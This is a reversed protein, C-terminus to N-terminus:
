CCLFTLRRTSSVNVNSGDSCSINWYHGGQSSINYSLIGSAGNSVFTYNVIVGDFVLSCNLSSASDDTVNFSFQQLASSVNTNNAPSVLFLLPPVTDRITINFRSTTNSTYDTEFITSFTYNTLDGTANVTWTVNCSTTNVMSVLCSSDHPNATTTYFPLAGVTNPVVGKATVAAYADIRPYILKTNSDYIGVGNFKLLNEIESPTVNRSYKERFYQVVLAASGAAHPTAMSTGPIGTHTGVYDTACIGFTCSYATGGPAVMDLNFARNSYSTISDSKSTAGVSTANYICAPWAIGPPSSSGLYENGSAIFVIIGAQRANNIAQTTTLDFDDCGFGNSDYAGGISISIVSINLSSANNVCWDIGANIDDSDCSGGSDCVKVMVLRAGPAVGRYTADESAVIGSVHSGHGNDDLPVPALNVYDYGGIVKANPFSGYGGFDPHSYNIGTDLVCVTQGTGTINSTSPKLQWVDDANILPVSQSLSIHATRVPYVYEVDPDQMLKELGEKTVTGSFANLTSYKHRLKFEAVGAISGKARSDVVDLNGLVRDQNDKVQQRLKTFFVKRDQQVVGSKQLFAQRAKKSRKFDSVDD